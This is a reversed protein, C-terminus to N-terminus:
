PRCNQKGEPWQVFSGNSFVIDSESTSTRGSPEGADLLGDSGTSRLTYEEPRSEVIFDNGWGDHRPLTRIFYPSVYPELESISSASPYFNHDISYEEMATAISRMEAMTRKQRGIQSLPHKIFDDNSMIIDDGWVAAWEHIEFELYDSDLRGDFGLSVVAYNTENSWYLYKNGWPDKVQFRDEFPPEHLELLSDLRVLDDSCSPYADHEERVLEIVIRVLMMDLFVQKEEISLDCDTAGVSPIAIHFPAAVVLVVLSLITRKM